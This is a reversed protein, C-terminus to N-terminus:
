SNGLTIGENIISFLEEKIISKAKSLSKTTGEKLLENDYKILWHYETELKIIFLEFIVRRGNVVCRSYRHWGHSIPSWRPNSQWRPM